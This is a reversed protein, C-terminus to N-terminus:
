KYIRDRYYIAFQLYNVMFVNCITLKTFNKHQLTLIQAQKEVFLILKAGLFLCFAISHLFRSYVKGFHM